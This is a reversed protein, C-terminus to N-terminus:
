IAGSIWLEYTNSWDIHGYYGSWTTHPDLALGDILLRPGGGSSPTM